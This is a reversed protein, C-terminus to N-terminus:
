TIPKLDERRVEKYIKRLAALDNLPYDFGMNSYYFSGDSKVVIDFKDRTLVTIDKTTKVENVKFGYEALLDISLLKM